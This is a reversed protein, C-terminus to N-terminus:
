QRQLISLSLSPPPSLHKSVWTQAPTSPLLSLETMAMSLIPLRPFLIGNPHRVRQVLSKIESALRGPTPHASLSLTAKIQILSISLAAPMPWRPMWSGSLAPSALSPTSPIQADELQGEAGLTGQTQSHAADVGWLAVYNLLASSRPSQYLLTMAPSGRSVRAEWFSCHLARHGELPDLGAFVDRVSCVCQASDRM